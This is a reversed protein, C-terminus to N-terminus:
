ELGSKKLPIRGLRGHAYLSTTSSLDSRDHQHVARVSVPGSCDLWSSSMMLACVVAAGTPVDWLASAVLGLAYGTGDRLGLSDPM